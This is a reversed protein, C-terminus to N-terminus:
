ASRTSELRERLRILMLWSIIEETEEREGSSLQELLRRSKLAYKEEYEAIEDNLAEVSGNAPAKAEAIIGALAKERMAPSAERIESFRVARSVPQGKRETSLIISMM